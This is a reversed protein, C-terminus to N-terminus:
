DATSSAPLAAESFEVRQLTYGPGRYLLTDESAVTQGSSYPSFTPDMIMRALPILTKAVATRTALVFVFLFGVVWSPEDASFFLLYVISVADSIAGFTLVFSAPIIFPVSRSPDAVLPDIFRLILALISVTVGIDITGELGKVLTLPVILSLLLFTCFRLRMRSAVLQDCVYGLREGQISSQMYHSTLLVFLRDIRYFFTPVCLYIM